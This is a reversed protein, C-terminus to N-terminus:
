GGGDRGLPTAEASPAPYRVVGDVAVAEPTVPHPSIRGDPLIHEVPRGEVLVLHDALLRRHCRWWLSEACLVAVPADAARGLLDAVGARFEDTAMHDAYARFQENRLGQNPSSPDPHRRGGLAPLGTYAIGHEPLWAAMAEAAMHPHRRSGPYRRVDVVTVVGAGALLAAFDAAARTGHGVTRIAEV